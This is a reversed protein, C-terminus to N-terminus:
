HRLLWLCPVMDPGLIKVLSGDHIVRNGARKEMIQAKHEYILFWDDIEIEYLFGYIAGNKM